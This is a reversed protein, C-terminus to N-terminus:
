ESDAWDTPSLKRKLPIHPPEVVLGLADVIQSATAEMMATRRDRDIRNLHHQGTTHYLYRDWEVRLQSVGPECLFYALSDLPLAPKLYSLWFEPIPRAAYLKKLIAIERGLLKRDAAVAPTCLAVVAKYRARQDLSLAPPRPAPM